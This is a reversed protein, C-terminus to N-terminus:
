SGASEPRPQALGARVEREILVELFGTVTADAFHARAREAAARLSERPSGPFREALKDVVQSLDLRGDDITM